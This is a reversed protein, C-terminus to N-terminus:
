LRRDAIPAIEGQRIRPRAAPADAAFEANALTEEFFRAQYAIIDTVFPFQPHRPEAARRYRDGDRELIRWSAM